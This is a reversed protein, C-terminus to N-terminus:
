RGKGFEKLKREREKNNWDKFENTNHIASKLANYVTNSAFAGTLPLGSLKQGPPLFPHEKYYQNILDQFLNAKQKLKIDEGLKLGTLSANFQQKENLVRQAKTLSINENKQAIDKALLFTQIAKPIMEGRVESRIPSMTSAASGAALVPSLGAAKLDAVRRQVASDERAFIRNQMAQEFNMQQNSGILSAIGSAIGGFAGSMLNSLFGM